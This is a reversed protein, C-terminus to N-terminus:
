GGDGGADQLVFDVPCFFVLDDETNQPDGQPLGNADIIQFNPTGCVGPFGLDTLVTGTPFSAFLTSIGGSICTGLQLVYAGSCVAIVFKVVRLKRKM